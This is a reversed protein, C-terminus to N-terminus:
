HCGPMIINQASTSVWDAWYPFTYNVIHQEDPVEDFSLSCGIELSEVIEIADQVSTAEIIFEQDFQYHKVVNFKM